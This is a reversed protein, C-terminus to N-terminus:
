CNVNGHCVSYTPFRKVCTRAKFREPKGQCEQVTRITKTVYTLACSNLPYQTQKM